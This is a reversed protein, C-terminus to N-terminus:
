RLGLFVRPAHRAEDLMENWNAHRAWSRRPSAAAENLTLDAVDNRM